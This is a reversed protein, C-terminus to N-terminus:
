RQLDWKAVQMIEYLRLNIGPDDLIEKPDFVKAVLRHLRHYSTVYNILFDLAKGSGMAPGTRKTFMIKNNLATFRDEWDDAPDPARGEIFIEFDVWHREIRLQAYTVEIESQLQSGFSVSLGQNNAGRRVLKKAADFFKIWKPRKAETLLSLKM